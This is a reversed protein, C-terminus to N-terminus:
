QLSKTITLINKGDQFCYSVTDMVKKVLFVGLGGIGREKAPLTVDPSERILPNYPKGTDEFVLTIQLPAEQLTCSITVNGTDPAYAYSAINIFIEEVALDVKRVLKRSCGATELHQNVFSFVKGLNERAAKITLIDM